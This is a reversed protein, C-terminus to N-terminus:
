WQISGVIPEWVSLYYVSIVQINNLLYLPPLSACMFAINEVLRLALSMVYLIFLSFITFM